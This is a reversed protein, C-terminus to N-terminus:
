LKYFNGLAKLLRSGYWSYLMGDVLKIEFGSKIKQLEKIHKQKFPYPESSLLLIEVGSELIEKQTVEPYRLCDAFVNKYGAYQMMDNIFTDGGAVMWPKRWIFYAAKRPQEKEVKERLAGAKKRIECILKEAAMTRGSLTGIHGIMELAEELTRVQSVYVAGHLKLEEIHVQENEEKNAIVLDPQLRLIEVLKPTKTGGMRKKSRYWSEPEVCFKTIGKVVADLSLYALLETISPVLCVISEPVDELVVPVGTQDILHIKHEKRKSLM